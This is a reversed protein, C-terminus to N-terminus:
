AAALARELACGEECIPPAIQEPAGEKPQILVVIDDVGFLDRSKREIARGLRRM